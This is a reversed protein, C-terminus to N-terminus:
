HRGAPRRPPERLWEVLVIGRYRGDPGCCVLPCDREEAPRRNAVLLCEARMSNPPLMTAPHEFPTGLLMAAREVLTVPRGASDVLVVWDHADSSLSLDVIEALSADSPLTPAAEVDDCLLDGAHAGSRQSASRILL